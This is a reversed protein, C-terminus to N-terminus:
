GGGVFSVIEIRDGHKLVTTEYEAKPLIEGNQEVAVRNRDYGAAELYLAVTQGEAEHYEGNIKVMLTEGRKGQAKIRLKMAFLFRSVVM